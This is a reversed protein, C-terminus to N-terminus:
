HQEDKLKYFREATIGTHVGDHIHGDRLMIAEIYGEIRYGILELTNVWKWLGASHGAALKHLPLRTFGPETLLAMAKSPRSGAVSSSREM